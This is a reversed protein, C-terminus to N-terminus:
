CCVFRMWKEMYRVEQKYQQNQYHTLVGYTGCSLLAATIAMAVLLGIKWRCAWKTERIVMADIEALARQKREKRNRFSANTVDRSQGHAQDNDDMLTSERSKGESVTHNRQNATTENSTDDDNNPADHYAEFSIVVDVGEQHSNLDM